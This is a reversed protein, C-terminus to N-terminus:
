KEGERLRRVEAALAALWDTVVGPMHKRSLYDEVEALTQDINM